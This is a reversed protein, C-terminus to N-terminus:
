VRRTDVVVGVVGAAVVLAGVVLAPLMGNEIGYAIVLVGAMGSIVGGGYWASWNLTGSAAAGSIGGVSLVIGVWYLPGVAGIGVSTVAMALAAMALGGLALRWGWRLDDPLPDASETMMSM